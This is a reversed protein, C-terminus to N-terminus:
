LTPNQPTNAASEELASQQGAEFSAQHALQDLHNTILYALIDTMPLGLNTSLERFKAYEPSSLTTVVRHPYKRRIKDKLTLSRPVQKFTGNAHRQQKYPNGATRKRKM